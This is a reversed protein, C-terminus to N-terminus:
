AYIEREWECWAHDNGVGVQQCTAVKVGKVKCTGWCSYIYNFQLIDFLNINWGMTIHWWHEIQHMHNFKSM